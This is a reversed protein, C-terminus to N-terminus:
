EEIESDKDSKECERRVRQLFYRMGDEPPVGPTIGHGLNCIWGGNLGEKALTLFGDKGWIFDRVGEKIAKKGAHLIAPDMNGQLAVTGETALRADRPSCAWDLGVSNYGIKTLSNLQSASNTGKSFVTM